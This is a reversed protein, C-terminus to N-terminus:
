AAVNTGQAARIRWTKGDNVLVWTFLGNRPPRASGDPNTDGSVSWALHLLATNAGLPKVDFSQNAWVSTRLTSAHLTRHVSEIEQAGKLHKGGVTIWDADPTILPGIRAMDHANWAAQWEATLHQAAQTLTNM